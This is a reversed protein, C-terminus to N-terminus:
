PRRFILETLSSELLKTLLERMESWMLRNGYRRRNLPIRLDLSPGVPGSPSGLHRWMDGFLVRVALLAAVLLLGLGRLRHGQQRGRGGGLDQGRGGGQAGGQRRRPAVVLARGRGRGVQPPAARPAEGLLPAAGGRPRLAGGPPRQAGGLGPGPRGHGISAGAPSCDPSLGTGPNSPCAPTKPHGGGGGKFPPFLGPM